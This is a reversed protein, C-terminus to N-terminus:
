PCEKHYRQNLHCKRCWSGSMISSPVAEWQHGKSCEWRLKTENNIYVDSLCKGKKAAALHKMDQITRKKVGACTPCWHGRLFVNLPTSQWQHGNGCEWALKTHINKYSQSLCKGGRLEAIQCMEEISHKVKKACYPCWTGSKVTYPSAKWRHGKQCEWLLKTKSGQYTSSLCRGGRKKAIQQFLLLDVM